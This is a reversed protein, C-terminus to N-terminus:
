GAFPGGADRTVGPAASAVEKAIRKPAALAVPKPAATPMSAARPTAREPTPSAPPKAAIRPAAASAEAAAVRARYHLGRLLTAVDRKSAPTDFVTKAVELQDAKNGAVPPATVAWVLPPAAAASTAVLAALCTVLAATVNLSTNSAHPM